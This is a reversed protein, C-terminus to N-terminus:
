VPRARRHAAIAAELEDILAQKARRGEVDRPHSEEITLTQDAVIQEAATLDDAPWEDPHAILRALWEYDIDDPVAAHHRV